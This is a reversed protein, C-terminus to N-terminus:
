RGIIEYVSIQELFAIAEDLPRPVRISIYKADQGTATNIFDILVNQILVGPQRGPIFRVGCEAFVSNLWLINGEDVDSLDPILYLDVFDGKELNGANFNEGSVELAVFGTEGINVDPTEIDGMSVISGSPIDRSATRGSIENIEATTIEEGYEGKYISVMEVDKEYVINGEKIDNVAVCIRMENKKAISGALVAQVATMGAAIVVALIIYVSKRM